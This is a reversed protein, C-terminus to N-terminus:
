RTYSPESETRWELMPRMVGPWDQTFEGRVGEGFSKDVVQFAIADREQAERRGHTKTGLSVSVFIQSEALLNGPIKCTSRGISGPAISRVSSESHNSTVFLLVGEENMFGLNVWPEVPSTSVNWYEVEVDIPRHIDAAESVEGREDLVRVSKLRLHEGGPASELDWARKGTTGFGSDLYTRVVDHSPGDAIVKGHDLLIVRPCLRLIAPMSHSVFVVTRGESGVTEMRGMCRKQFDADGVALVEDVLLVDTELHASVAFALRVQMGTSYRKVPTDIFQPVGAFAVIEDFKKTIEARTMGLIAGNLYVNERGTLEPHFGTGVELLSGISGRIYGHGSTPPTIRSLVKLMTTKGAGNRGIIGVVEGQTIEFSVDKLAWLDQDDVKENRARSRIARIPASVGRAITDRLAKYPELQGLRFVKSINDSSVSVLGSM